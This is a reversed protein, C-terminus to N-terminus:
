YNSLTKKYLEVMKAKKKRLDALGVLKKKIRTITIKKKLSRAKEAIFITLVLSRL